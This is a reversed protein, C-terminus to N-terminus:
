TWYIYGALTSFSDEEYLVVETPDTPTTVGAADISEGLVKTRAYHVSGDAAKMEIVQWSGIQVQATNWGAANYTMYYDLYVLDDGYQYQTDVRNLLLTGPAANGIQTMTGSNVKGQMDRYTAHNFSSYNTASSVVVDMRYTLPNTGSVIYKFNGLDDIPGEIQNDDTDFLNVEAQASSTTVIRAYNHRRAYYRNTSDYGLRVLCVGLMGHASEEAIPRKAYTGAYRPHEKNFV